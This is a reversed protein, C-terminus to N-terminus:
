DRFGLSKLDLTIDAGHFVSNERKLEEASKRGSALDRADQDRSERKRAAVDAPDYVLVAM